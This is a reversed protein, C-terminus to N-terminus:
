ENVIFSIRTLRCKNCLHDPLREVLLKHVGSVLPLAGVSCELMVLPLGYFSVCKQIIHAVILKYLLERSRPMINGVM